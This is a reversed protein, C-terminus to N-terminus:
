LEKGTQLISLAKQLNDVATKVDDYNLASSAWKCYKQAKEMLEPPLTDPSTQSGEITSDTDISPSAPPTPEKAFNPFEKMGFPPIMNEDPPLIPREPPPDDESRPVVFSIGNIMEDEKSTHIIVDPRLPKEGIKLCGHIHAARWRAFKQKEKIDDSLTGFQQLTEMIIATNYFAKVM